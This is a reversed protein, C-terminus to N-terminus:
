AMVIERKKRTKLIKKRVTDVPLDRMEAIERTTLNHLYKDRLLASDTDVEIEDDVDIMDRQDVRKDIINQGGILNFMRHTGINAKQQTLCEMIVGRYLYTSFKLGKNPDHKQLSNWLAVLICNEIEEPRLFPSFRSAARRAIKTLDADKLLEEFRQHLEM